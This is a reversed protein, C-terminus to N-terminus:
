PLTWRSTTTGSPSKSQSSTTFSHAGNAAFTGCNGGVSAFAFQVVRIGDGSRAFPPTHTIPPGGHLSVFM